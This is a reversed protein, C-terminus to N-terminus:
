ASKAKPAVVLSEEYAEIDALRYRITRKTRSETLPLYKPGEGSRRKRAVVEPDLQWREALEDETLIAAM